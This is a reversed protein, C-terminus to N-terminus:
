PKRDFYYVLASTATTWAASAPAAAYYAEWQADAITGPAANTGRIIGATADSTGDIATDISELFDLEDQTFATCTADRCITMINKGTDGAIGTGADNGLFVYFTFSGMNVTHSPTNVFGANTFDTAVNGDGIKGDRNADGPFYGKKDFYTWAGVEWKKVTETILKKARAGQILDQGKLVAGLIIGIIVLVIALEILTFGKADKLRLM